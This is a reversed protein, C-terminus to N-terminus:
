IITNKSCIIIDNKREGSSSPLSLRHKHIDGFTEQSVEDAGVGSAGKSQNRKTSASSQEDKHLMIYLMSINHNTTLTRVCYKGSAPDSNTIM